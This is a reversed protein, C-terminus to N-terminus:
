PKSAEERKYGLLACLGYFTRPNHGTEGQIKDFNYELTNRHFHVRRAVESVCLNHKAMLHLINEREEPTM